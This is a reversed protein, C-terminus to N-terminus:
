RINKENPNIIYNQIIAEIKSFTDPILTKVPKLLELIICLAKKIYTNEEKIKDAILYNDITEKNKLIQNAQQELENIANINEQKQQQILRNIRDQDNQQQWERLSLNINVDKDNDHTSIEGRAFGYRKNVSEYVRDLFSTFSNNYAGGDKAKWVDSKSLKKYTTGTKSDIVSVTPVLQVHMHPKIYSYFDREKETLLQKETGDALTISVPRYVEDLHIDYSLFMCDKFADDAELFKKFDEFYKIQEGNIFEEIQSPHIKFSSPAVIISQMFTTHRNSAGKKHVRAVHFEDGKLTEKPYKIGTRLNNWIVDRFHMGDFKTPLSYNYKKYLPNANNKMVYQKVHAECRNVDARSCFDSIKIISVKREM